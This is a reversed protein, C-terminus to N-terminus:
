NLVVPRGDPEQSYDLFRYAPSDGHEARNHDFYSTLTVGEPALIASPHSAYPDADGLTPAANNSWHDRSVSTLNITM